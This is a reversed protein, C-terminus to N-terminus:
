EKLHCFLGVFSSVCTILFFTMSFIVGSNVDANITTLGYFFTLERLGVGGISIPLVAVVSSVLFLALFNITLDQINFAYIICVACVLQFLQVAVGYLTTIPFVGIFVRALYLTLFYSIPFVCIVIIFAVSKILVFLRAFDSTLLLISGLFFVATLGSIRDLLVAKFLPFYGTQYKKNLLFVKYADGGIGGPLFLNYFMGLYYLRLNYGAALNVRLEKFYYNLRSAAVIKSINFFFFAGLLFGLDASNLLIQVQDFDLQKIVYGLASVTVVTKVLTIVVRKLKVQETPLKRSM